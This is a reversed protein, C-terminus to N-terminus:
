PSLPWAHVPSWAGGNAAATSRRRSAANRVVASSDVLASAFEAATAFRDAPLKELAHLVAAEVHEPVAKRQVAIRRPEESILRAVIAQVSPGSFPPEGVLMEYTVAGLAYLDSRSDIVREGLAQEPSM